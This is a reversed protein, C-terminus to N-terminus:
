LAIAEPTSTWVHLSGFQEYVIADSAAPPPSILVMTKQRSAESATVEPRLPLADGPM